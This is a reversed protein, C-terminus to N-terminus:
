KRAGLTKAVKALLDPIKFPKTLYHRAGMNIGQVVDKPSDRGTLFIIPVGRLRTDAKLTSALQLGDMRPMMVDLILLEPPPKIRALMELATHGDPAEYVTYEQGLSRTLMERISPDDEVVMIAKATPGPSVTPVPDPVLVAEPAPAAPAPAPATPARAPATPARAPATPARAPATPAPAATV